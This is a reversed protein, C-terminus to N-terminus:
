DIGFVYWTWRQNSKNQLYSWFEDMEGELRIEVELDEFKSFEENNVFFPNTKSSTKKLESSVTDKSIRLVRGIDRVGSSNLTMEIIKAKIEKKCANYSHFIFLKYNNKNKTIM